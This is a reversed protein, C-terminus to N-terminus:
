VSNEEFINDVNKFQLPALEDSCIHVFPRKNGEYGNRLMVWSYKWTKLANKGEPRVSPLRFIEYVCSVSCAFGMLCMCLQKGIKRLYIWSFIFM